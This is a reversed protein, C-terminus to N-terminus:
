EENTIRGFYDEMRFYDTMDVPQLKGAPNKGKPINKSNLEM